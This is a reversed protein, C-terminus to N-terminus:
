VAINIPIYLRRYPRALDLHNDPTENRVLIHCHPGAEQLLHKPLYPLGGAM